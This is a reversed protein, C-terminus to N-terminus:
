YMGVYDIVRDNGCVDVAIALAWFKDAHHTRDETDYSFVNTRNASRKVSLIQQILGPHNPLRLRREEFARKLGKALREKVAPAFNYGRVLAPFAMQMDEYLNMGIGGRDIGMMGTQPLTLLKSLAERQVGFSARKLESLYRMIILNELAKSVGSIATEDRTRGIDVGWYLGIKQGEGDWGMALDGKQMYEGKSGPVSQLNLDLCPEILDYPIYSDTTDLPVCEYAQAFEEPSFLERLEEINVPFGQAVADHISVQHKSFSNEKEWLQWFKDIRSKPTSIVSIRGGVATISPVLATWIKSDQLTFAFEDFWIDGNFGRATRWNTALFRIKKGNFFVIKDASDTEVPIQMAELHERVYDGIIAANDLSSSIVLQHKQRILAGIIIDVAVAYSFGIQRSKNVMRFRRKD